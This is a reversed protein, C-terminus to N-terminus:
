GCLIRLRAGGGVVAAITSRILHLAHVATAPTSNRGAQQFFREPNLSAGLVLAVERDTNQRELLGVLRDWIQPGTLGTWVGEARRLRNDVSGEGGPGHWPGVWDDVQSPRQPGFLALTGIQKAAQSCVEHLASASVYSRKKSAKAHVMVVVDRGDRRGAILFDCSEHRGDDCIVLEAGPLVTEINDDIWRFVSGAAWTQPTATNQDGKESNCAHLAQQNLVVDDLGLAQADFTAGLKLMPDYFAGESYITNPADPIVVFAQDANLHNVLNGVRTADEFRYLRELDNSVLQYRGESPLYEFSGDCRVGNAIMKVSRPAMPQGRVSTCKLCVDEIELPMNPVVNAHGTTVFLTRAEELDVLVSRPRPRAPPQDLPTAFRELYSPAPRTADSAVGILGNTWAIWAKLTARSGADSVRGRGFGVSRLSFSDEDPEDSAQARRDVATLSSAVFQFEDLSPPTAELSTAFASRRRVASPGLAANRTSVEVLRTGSSLTLLRALQARALPPGVTAAAMADLGPRSTDLAAIVRGVRRALFLHVEREVFYHHALLPSTQMKVFLVILEEETSTIVEFSFGAELLRERTAEYLQALGYRTHTNYLHCRLPLRLSRRLEEESQAGYQLRRRFQRDVYVVPPLGQDFAMALEELGQLINERDVQDDYALFRAWIDALLGASHDILLAHEAQDQLPNRIVRGIQQVLARASGLVGFFAVARFSPGDVGELLKYQHVWIAPADPREPDSPQRQEWPRQADPLFKEHLCLVGGAGLQHNRIEDGIQRVMDSGRCRIILKREATPAVGYKAVFARLVSEAFEAPDAAANPDVEVTDLRRLIHANMLDRYRSIYVADHDIEFAKLDNRYPTATVLVTPRGLGRITQSWSKAPEYHGEDVIVADCGNALSEYKERRAPTSAMDDILQITAVFIVGEPLQAQLDRASKLVRVDKPLADARYGRRLFFGREGNLEKALQDRIATRPALVLVRGLGPHWHSLTGIIATKGGGTPINILASPRGETRPGLQVDLFSSVTDIAEAQHQWLRLNDPYDM